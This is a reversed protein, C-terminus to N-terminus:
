KIESNIDCRRAAQQVENVEDGHVLGGRCLLCLAGYRWGLLLVGCLLVACRMVGGAVCPVM